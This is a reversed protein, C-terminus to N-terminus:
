VGPSKGGRSVSRGSHGLSWKENSHSMSYKGVTCLFGRRVGFHSYLSLLRLRETGTCWKLFSVLVRGMDERSGRRRRSEKPHWGLKEKTEGYTSSYQVGVGSQVRGPWGMGPVSKLYVRCVRPTVGRYWPHTRLKEQNHLRRSGGDYRSLVRLLQVM